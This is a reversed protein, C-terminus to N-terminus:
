SNNPKTFLANGLVLLDMETNIFCSCADQPTCVIPEGRVNFSTNVLVGIGTEKKFANLLNVNETIFLNASFQNEDVRTEINNYILFQTKLIKSESIARIFRKVIKRKEVDKDIISEALIDNFANKIKGFNQM